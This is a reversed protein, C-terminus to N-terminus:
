GELNANKTEEILPAHDRDYEVLLLCQRKLYYRRQAPTEANAYYGALSLVWLFLRGRPLRNFVPLIAFCAKGIVMKLVQGSRKM